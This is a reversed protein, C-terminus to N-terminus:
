VELVASYRRRLLRRFGVHAFRWSLREPARCVGEWPVGDMVKDEIVGAPVVDGYKGKGKGGGFGLDQEDQYTFTVGVVGHHGWELRRRRFQGFREMFQKEQLDFNLGEIRMTVKEKSDRLSVRVRSATELIMQVVVEKKLEKCHVEPRDRDYFQEKFDDMVCMAENVIRKELKMPSPDMAMREPPQERDGKGDGKDRGKHPPASFRSASRGRDERSRSQRRRADGGVSGVGVGVGVADRPYLGGTYRGVVASIVGRGDGLISKKMGCEGAIVNNLLEVDAKHQVIKAQSVRTCEENAIVKEEYKKIYKGFEAKYAESEERTIQGLDTSHALM